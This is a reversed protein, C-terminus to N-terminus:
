SPRRSLEVLLQHRIKLRETKDKRLSGLSLVGLLLEPFLLWELLDPESEPPQMLGGSLLTTLPPSRFGEGGGAGRWRWRPFRGPLGAVGVESMERWWWWLMFPSKPESSFVDVDM